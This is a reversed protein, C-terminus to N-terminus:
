YDIEPMSMLGQYDKRQDQMPQDATLTLDLRRIPFISHRFIGSPYGQANLKVYWLCVPEGSKIALDM